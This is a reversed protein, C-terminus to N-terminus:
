HIKKNQELLYFLPAILFAQFIELTAQLWTIQSLIDLQNIDSQIFYIRFFENIKPLFYLLLFIFFYSINNKLLELCDNKLNRM